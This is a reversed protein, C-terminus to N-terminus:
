APEPMRGFLVATNMILFSDFSTGTDYKSVHSLDVTWLRSMRSTSSAKRLRFQTNPIEAKANRQTSKADKAKILLVCSYARGLELNGIGLGEGGM